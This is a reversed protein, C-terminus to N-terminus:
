LWCYCEDGVSLLVWKYGVTVSMEWQFCCENIVLLLVWRGSFAASADWKYGVIMEMTVWAYDADWKYGVIVRGIDSGGLFCFFVVGADWLLQKYFGSWNDSVGGGGGGRSFMVLMEFGVVVRESDTVVGWGGWVFGVWEESSEDDSVTVVGGGGGVWHFCCWCWLVLLWEKMAVSQGWQRKLRWHGVLMLQMVSNVPISWLVFCDRRDNREKTTCANSCSCSYCLQELIFPVLVATPKNIIIIIIIIYMQHYWLVFCDRRDNREKTTCANSCSCSYSLQELIFPVLVATPKNIIIIIIINM